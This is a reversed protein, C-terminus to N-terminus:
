RLSTRTTEPLHTSSNSPGYSLSPNNSVLKHIYIFMYPLTNAFSDYAGDWGRLFSSGLVVIYSSSSLFLLYIIVFVVRVLLLFRFINILPLVAAVLSGNMQSVNLTSHRLREGQLAM